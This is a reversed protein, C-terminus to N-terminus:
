ARGASRQPALFLEEVLEAIGDSDCDGIVRDAAEVTQPMSGGMAVGLGAGSLMPIDNSADGVAVVREAPIGHEEQLYRLAEAKGRCPPHVDAVLLRNEGLKPLLSLPFATMYVPGSIAAEADAAFREPCEWRDSFYTLRIAHEVSLEARPVFKLEHMYSVGERESDNRPELAVKSNACMAVIMLDEREAFALGEAVTRNSLIREEILRQERPCWLGAGNFVFSPAEFGLEEIVPIASISSRGTVVIVKVGDAEARKLADLNAPRVRSQGDLLTGDLDLLLADYARKM